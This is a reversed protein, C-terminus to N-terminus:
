PYSIASEPCVGVLQVQKRLSFREIGSTIGSDLVSAGTNAAARAIGAMTKGPRDTSSGAVIIVPCADVFKLRDCVESIRFDANKPDGIRVLKASSGGPILM